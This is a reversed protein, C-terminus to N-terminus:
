TKRLKQKTKRLQKLFYQNEFTIGSNFISIINLELYYLLRNIVIFLVFFFVCVCVCM